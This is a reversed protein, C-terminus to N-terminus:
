WPYRSLAVLEDFVIHPTNATLVAFDVGAGALRRLSALLYAILAPRDREVLDLARWVDLSDIVISPSTRPNEREWADLIRRYYDVTSEPGLGGVIGLTMM